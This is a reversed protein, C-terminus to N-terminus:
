HKNLYREKREEDLHGETFYEYSKAGFRVKKGSNTLIFFKKITDTSPYPFYIYDYTM